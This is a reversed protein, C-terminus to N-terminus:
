SENKYRFEISQILVTNSEIEQVKYENFPYEHKILIRNNLFTKFFTCSFKLFFLPYELSEVVVYHIIDTSPM